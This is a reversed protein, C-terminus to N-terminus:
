WMLLTGVACCAKKDDFSLGQRLLFILLSIPSVDSLGADVQDGCLADLTTRDGLECLELLVVAAVVVFM